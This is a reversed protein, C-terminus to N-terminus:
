AGPDVSVIEGATPVARGEILVPAAFPKPPLAVAAALRTRPGPRRLEAHPESAFPGPRDPDTAPREAPEAPPEPLGDVAPPAILAELAQGEAFRHRIFSENSTNELLRRVLYAMGAVLDGVPAYVRVRFGLRRLAAHVPEAMGYLLQHELAAAALGRSRGYAIPYAISRLNHSGFAPRVRGAHEVLHRVCREYNADTEAKAEFVPVPWGEATAVVTEFDWYAGKVLRVALPRRLARESWAVVERLDAFADKRYAQIVCGLPPGDPFEAGLTRLLELTLDKVDDHEMDLHVTAGAERARRLIPLLRERAEALGEPASAPAFLPSLATPKVSVNVRPVPGWPDRELRPEAPWERTGAVLAELMARVREAYRAAERETVTKEGLLDVTCAEGARWLAALRPLADEPTAGAILQRAMRMINRRAAATSLRAGFPVREAVELGLGLARPVDVGTFYESLHRLVDADDRCAPFVDVFRFLETKFGPHSMAWDLVRESWRGLHFLHARESAGAAAIQRALAQVEHEFGDGM